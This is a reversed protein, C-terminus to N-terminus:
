ETSVQIKSCPAGCQKIVNMIEDIKPEQTTLVRGDTLTLRVILSHSQSAKTVLGGTILPQAQAWPLDPLFAFSATVAKYVAELDSQAKQIGLPQFWFNYLTNNHLVILNRSALRAPVNELVEAPEGGLTISKRTIAPQAKPQAAIFKDVAQKLTVTTTMPTADLTMTARVPDPSSDLAQGVLQPHGPSAEAPKFQIPFAYCYHYKSDVFLPQGVVRCSPPVTNIDTTPVAAVTPPVTPSPQTTPTPPVATATPAPTNTPLPAQTPVPTPTPPASCAALAFLSGAVIVVLAISAHIKLQM